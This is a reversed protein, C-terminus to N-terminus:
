VHVIFFSLVGWTLGTKVQGTRLWTEIRQGTPSHPMEFQVM